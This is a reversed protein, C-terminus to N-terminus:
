SMVYSLFSLFSLNFVIDGNVKVRGMSFFVLGMVKISNVAVAVCALGFLFCAGPVYAAMFAKKKECDVVFV